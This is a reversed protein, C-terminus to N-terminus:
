SLARIALKNGILLNNFKWYKWYRLNKRRRPESGFSFAHGKECCKLIEVLCDYLSRLSLTLCYTQGEPDVNFIIM